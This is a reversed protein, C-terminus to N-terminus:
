LRNTPALGPPRALWDEGGATATGPATRRFEDLASVAARDAEHDAADEISAFERLLVTSREGADVRLTKFRTGPLFLARGLREPDVPGTPRATESWILFDVNGKGAPGGSVRVSCLGRDLILQKDTYWQIEEPGLKSRLTVVGRHPRLLRLGASVCRLMPRRTEAADSRNGSDQGPKTLYIRVAALDTIAAEAFLPKGDRGTVGKVLSSVEAVAKTCQAGYADRLWAHDAEQGQRVPTRKAKTAM